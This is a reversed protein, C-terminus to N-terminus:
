KVMKEIEESQPIIKTVRELVKKADAMNGGRYKASPTRRKKQRIENDHEICCKAFHLAETELKNLIVRRMHESWPDYMKRFPEGRFLKFAQLYERKAFGWEGARELAQATTFTQEFEAYDTIFHIGRNVLVPEGGRHSIDLLHSPIKLAKKIRVLLHSLNRAQTSSGPWFNNDIDKLFIKKGPETARLALNILFATDKPPLKVSLHGQNKYVKLNGLFQINYAPIEKNFVPLKQMAKPLGTPKGKELLNTVIKPFFFIYRYFYGLIGKKRAYSLANFYKGNRLLFALKVTPLLNESSKCRPISINSGSVHTGNSLIRIITTYKELKKKVLYPLIRKLVNKAKVTEGICCYASAITSSVTFIGLDLGAKRLGSLSTTALSIAKTPKGKYFSLSSLFIHKEYHPTWEGFAAYKSVSTAEKYEGKCLLLNALYAKITKKSEKDIKDFARLFWYEAKKNDELNGYLTGLNAMLYPSPQKKTKLARHCIEATKQGKGIRLFYVYTYGEVILLLFRLRFLLYSSYGQNKELVEKLEKIRKLQVEPRPRWLMAILEMIGVRLASYNLNRRRLDDYLKKTNRLYSQISSKGYFCSIKETKRRFNLFRDPIELILENKALFPISNLIEAAEKIKGIDFLKKAEEYKIMAEKSWTRYQTYNNTIKEKEFGAYGYRKWVCWIGKISIKIGEKELIEKTKRVTLAPDSEKLLIIKEELEKKLRDWPKRYNSLLREKGHNKYLKVWKFLTQYHINYKQATKRLSSGNNLYYHVINLPIERQKNYM